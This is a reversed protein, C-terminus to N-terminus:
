DGKQSKRLNKNRYLWELISGVDMLANTINVIFDAQSKNKSLHAKTIHLDLLALDKLLTPEEIVSLEKKLSVVTEYLERVVMPKFLLLPRWEAGRVEELLNDLRDENLAMM